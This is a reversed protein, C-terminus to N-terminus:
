PLQDRREHTLQQYTQTLHIQHPDVIGHVPRQPHHDAATLGTRHTLATAPQHARGLWTCDATPRTLPHQQPTADRHRPPLRRM